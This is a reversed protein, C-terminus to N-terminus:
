GEAKFSVKVRLGPKADEFTIVGQHVEVIQRCISLGLGLGESKNDLYEAPKAMDQRQSASLGPGNDIVAFGQGNLHLQVQSQAPCYRLANQLLNDVLVQLLTADGNVLCPALKWNFAIAKDGFRAQYRPLLTSLQEGLDVTKFRQQWHGREIRALTLLQEVVRALRDSEQRIAALDPDPSALEIKLTTLPTRLEHAVSSAFRRERNLVEDVGLILQNLTNELTRIEEASTNVNLPTLDMASRKELQQALRTLPKLFLSLLLVLLVLSISGGLLVPSLIAKTVDRLIQQSLDDRRLLQVVLDGHQLQYGHWLHQQFYRSVPGSGKHKLPLHHDLNSTVDKDGQYLNVWLTDENESRLNQQLLQELQNGTFTTKSALMALLQSQHKLDAQLVEKFENDAARYTAVIGLLSSLVITLGLLLALHTLKFTM